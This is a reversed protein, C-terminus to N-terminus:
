LWSADGLLALAKKESWQDSCSHPPIGGAVGGKTHGVTTSLQFPQTLSRHELGRAVVSFASRTGAWHRGIFPRCVIGAVVTM